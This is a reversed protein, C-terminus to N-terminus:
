LTKSVDYVLQLVSDPDTEDGYGLIFPANTKTDLEFLTQKGKAPITISQGSLLPKQRM